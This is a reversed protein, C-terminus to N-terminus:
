CGEDDPFFTCNSLPKITGGGSSPRNFTGSEFGGESEAGHSPIRPLKNKSPGHFSVKSAPWDLRALCGGWFNAATAGHVISNYFPHKPGVVGVSSIEHDSDRWQKIISGGNNYAASVWFALSIEKAIQSQKDLPLDQLLLYTNKLVKNAYLRGKSFVNLGFDLNQRHAIDINYILFYIEAAALRVANKPQVLYEWAFRHIYPSDDKSIGLLQHDIVRQPQLQSIGSSGSQYFQEQLYECMNYDSLENALVAALLRPDIRSERAATLLDTRDVGYSSLVQELWYVKDHCSLGILQNPSTRYWPDNHCIRSLCRKFVSPSFYGEGERYDICSVSFVRSPMTAIVISILLLLTRMM